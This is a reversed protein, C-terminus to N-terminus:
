RNTGDYDVIRKQLMNLHERITVIKRKIAYSTESQEM